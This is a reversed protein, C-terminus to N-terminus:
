FAENFVFYVGYTGKWFGVDLRAVINKDMFPRFRAGAGISYSYDKVKFYDMFKSGTIGQGFFGTFVFRNVPIRLEGQINFLYDDRGIGVPYGRLLEKGGLAPLLYFPVDGFSMKATIQSALIVKRKINIFSRYEAGLTAFQYKSGLAKPYIKAEVGLYNGKYAFYLDDRNDFALNLGFGQSFGGSKGLFNTTDMMKNPEPILKPTYDFHYTAGILFLRHIQYLYTARGEFGKTLVLEKNSKDLKNGIGFFPEKLKQYNIEYDLRHKDGKAYYSGFVEVRMQNNISYTGWASIYSPTNATDRKARWSVVSGLGLMLNYEPTYYILPFALGTVPKEQRFVKDIINRKKPLTDEEPDIRTEVEENNQGSDQAYVLSSFFLVAILFAAKM